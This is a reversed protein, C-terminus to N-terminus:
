EGKKAFLDGLGWCVSHIEQKPLKSIQKEINSFNSRRNCKYIDEIYRKRKKFLYKDDIMQRVKVPLTPMVDILEPYNFKM